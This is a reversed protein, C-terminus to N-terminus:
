GVEVPDGENRRDDLQLVTVQEPEHKWTVGVVMPYRPEENPGPINTQLSMRGVIADIRDGVFYQNTIRGITVSGAMSPCEKASRLGEAYQLAAESDDRTFIRAFTSDDGRDTLSTETRAYNSSVHVAQAKYRDHGDVYRAVEYRTPSTKRRRALSPSVRRDARVVCTLLLYANLAPSTTDFESFWKVVDVTGDVSFASWDDLIAANDDSLKGISWAHPDEGALRVGLRKTELTWSGKVPIIVMGAGAGDAGAYTPLFPPNAKEVAANYGYMIALQPKKAVGLDDVSFCPGYGPRRRRVWEPGWIHEFGTFPQLDVWAGSLLDWHGEGCEDAVFLRYKDRDATPSTNSTLFTTDDDVDGPDIRFGPALVIGIEYEDPKSDVWYANVIQTGDVALGFAKVNSLAPNVIGGSQLYLSKIPATATDREREFTLYNHPLGDKTGLRFAFTFGHHSIVENLANPWPKGSIVMDKCYIPGYSMTGDALPVFASLAREVASGDPYDVYPRDGNGCALIYRAVQAITWKSSIPRSAELAAAFRPMQDDYFVPYRAGTSPWYADRDIDLWDGAVCNPRGEPNVRAPMAKCWVDNDTDDVADAHRRISGILPTDWCRIAAGQAQFALTYGKGSISGEPIQVFGDFLYAVQGDDDITAVVLRDDISITDDTWTWKNIPLVAEFPATPSGDARYAYRFTARPPYPGKRYSIETWRVTPMPEMGADTWRFVATPRAATVPPLDYPDFTASPAGPM